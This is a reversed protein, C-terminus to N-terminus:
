FFHWCFIKKENISFNNLFNRFFRPFQIKYNIVIQNTKLKKFLFPHVIIQNVYLMSQQLEFLIFGCSLGITQRMSNFYNSLLIKKSKIISIPDLYCLIKCDAAYVFNVFNLLILPLFILLIKMAM